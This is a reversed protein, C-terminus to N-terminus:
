PREIPKGDTGCSKPRFGIRMSVTSHSISRRSFRPLKLPAILLEKRERDNRKLSKSNRRMEKLDKFDRANKNEIGVAGVLLKKIKECSLFVQAGLLLPAAVYRPLVTAQRGMRGKSSDAGDRCNTTRYLKQHLAPILRQPSRVCFNVIQTQPVRNTGPTGSDM